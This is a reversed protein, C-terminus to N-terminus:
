LQRRRNWFIISISICIISVLILAIQNIWISQIDSNSLSTFFCNPFRIVLSFARLKYVYIGHIDYSGMNSYVMHLFLIPISPLSTKFILTICSTISVIFLICPIVCWLVYKWIDIFSIPISEAAGKIVLLIDFLTTIISVVILISLIGGLIKGVIFKYGKIPKTHLLEYLDKKTEKNFLFAAMIISYFILSVSLYDVYKRSFYNSFNEKKLSDDIYKNVEELSGKKLNAEYFYQEAGIFSFNKEMYRGIEEFSMNEEKMKSIIEEIEKDKLGFSEKLEKSLNKFGISYRDEKTTPIYGSNIDVDGLDAENVKKSISKENVPIINLFDSCLYFTYICVIIAGVIYVPNKLYQKIQKKVTFLM